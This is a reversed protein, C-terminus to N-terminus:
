SSVPKRTISRRRTARQRERAVRLVCFARTWATKLRRAVPDLHFYCLRQGRLAPSGCPLGDSKLHACLRLSM